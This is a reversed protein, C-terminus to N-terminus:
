FYVKSILCKSGQEDSNKVRERLTKELKQYNESLTKKTEILLNDKSARVDEIKKSLDDRVTKLSSTLETKNEEVVRLILEYDFLSRVKIQYIGRPLL